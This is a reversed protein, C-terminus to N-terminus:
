EPGESHHLGSLLRAALPNQTSPLARGNPSRPEPPSEPAEERAQRRALKAHLRRFRDFMDEWELEVVKFKRELAELRELIHTQALVAVTGADPKGRTKWLAM